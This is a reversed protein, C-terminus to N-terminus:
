RPLRSQLRLSDSQRTSPKVTAEPKGHDWQHESQANGGERQHVKFQGVQRQLEAAMRSLEGAANLTDHAGRASEQAAQAVGAINRTIEMDGKTAKAVNHTIEVTTMTQEEVTGAITNSIENFHSIVSGIKGIAEVAAMTDTQISQIKQGIDETAKSTQKSLEKVENAVVAFGKGAEGARAAEITANLALLNTQEAISTIVKIVQGIESSSEGLKAVTENTSEVVKVANAAVKTAENANQAIEKISTSMKGTGTGMHENSKRIEESAASVVNAQTSTEKANSAMLQSLENLDNSSRVLGQTTQGVSQMAKQIKAIFTNLWMGLQGIEDQSAVTVRQTLDGEGEAIDKFCRVMMNIPKTVMRHALGAGIVFMVLLSGVLIVLSDRQFQKVGFLVVREPVSRVQTWYYSKDNPDPYVPGYVLVEGKVTTVGTKGSM